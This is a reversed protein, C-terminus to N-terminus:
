VVSKRDLINPALSNSEYNGSRIIWNLNRFRANRYKEAHVYSGGVEKKVDARTLPIDKVIAFEGPRKIIVKPM